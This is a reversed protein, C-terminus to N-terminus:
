RKFEVVGLNTANCQAGSAATVAGVVTYTHSGAAPADFVSLTVLSMASPLGSAAFISTGDRKITITYPASGSNVLTSATFNVQVAGGSTTVALTTLTIGSTSNFTVSGTSVSGPVTAANAVLGATNAINGTMGSNLFRGYTTGDPVGDLSTPGLLQWYTANPPTNGTSALICLWYSGGNTVEAGKPYATTNSYAGQFSYPIGAAVYSALIRSYTAGDAVHDLTTPGLLQWFSANPPDNGTTAAIALYYNGGSAVEAGQVYATTHSYAGQYNYAVGNAVYAGLVKSYTAGNPIGDIGSGAVPNIYQGIAGVVVTTSAAGPDSATAGSWTFSDGNATNVLVELPGGTFTAAELYLEWSTNSPSTSGGTAAAKFSLMPQSAGHTIVSIGSLNPAAATNSGRIFIESTSQQNSNSNFGVGSAWHLKATSAINLVLTGLHFWVTAGTPNSLDFVRQAFRTAGDSVSDLSTPGLLQWFTANTPLNGTTNAIALYYNGDYSVEAGQLYATGGSYVGQFNYAVGDAVYAALVRSYTSGNAVNDLSTPGLLQWFSVNTPVNGTTNATALYYNGNYAVEAGQLYATAGNYVGQFNYAIGDAVYAALVRSYTTGNAVSDLNAPGVLQWYTANPPVENTSNATAIYYNGGQLVEDGIIYASASSWAGKYNYSVGNIVNVSLTKAYTTGNPIGDLNTIYALPGVGTLMQSSSFAPLNIINDGIISMQMGDLWVTEISSFTFEWTATPTSDASFDFLGWVQQWQSSVPIVFTETDITGGSSAVTLSGTLGAPALIQFTCYWKSASEMAIPFGTFALTAGIATPVVKLSANGYYQQTADVTPTCNVATLAGLPAPSSATAFTQFMAPIVNPANQEQKLIAGWQQLATLFQQWQAQNTPMVAPLPPLQTGLTAQSNVVTCSM